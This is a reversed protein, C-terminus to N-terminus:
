ANMCSVGMRTPGLAAASLGRLEDLKSSCDAWPVYIVRLTQVMTYTKNVLATSPEYEGVVQIGM